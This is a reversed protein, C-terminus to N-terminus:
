AANVDLENKHFAGGKVIAVVGEGNRTLISLDELPNGDVILLDALAGEKVVGLEGPVGLIQAANSTTQLLVEYNSFVQARLEFETCQDDELPGLLDTGFGVVVGARKLHELREIVQEILVQLKEISQKPLGFEDGRKGMSHITALTPVVFVGKEAAMQATDAEILSGHEICHVGLEIARRMGEDPHIHATCYAGHREVEDVVAAIEEDSFQLSRLPDSPSVVGGSAMIKIFSAGTRLNERVARRVASVGDVIYCVSNAVGCGCTVCDENRRDYLHSDRLDGHGGTQSLAKGCFYLRPGVMMGKQLAQQLGFDAGGVDRVTTFGRDLMNRLIKVAWVGQLTPSAAGMEVPSLATITAHIHADIMGPMLTRGGCDIVKGDDPTPPRDSIEFIRDGRVFVSVGSRLRDNEGDFVLANDFVTM